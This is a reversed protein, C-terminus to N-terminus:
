TASQGLVSRSIQFGRHHRLERGDQRVKNRVMFEDVEGPLLKKLLNINMKIILKDFPILNDFLLACVRLPLLTLIRNTSAQSFAVLECSFAKKCM